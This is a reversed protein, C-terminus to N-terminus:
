ICVNYSIDVTCYDINFSFILFLKSILNYGVNSSNNYIMYLLFNYSAVSGWIKKIFIKNRRSIETKNWKEGGNENIEEIKKKKEFVRFLDFLWSNM